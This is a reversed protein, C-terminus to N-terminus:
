RPLKLKVQRGGSDLTVSVASIEVVEAENIVDGEAVIENNIVAKPTNASYLIGSLKFSGDESEIQRTKKKPPGIRKLIGEMIPALKDATVFGPIKQIVKGNNDLFFINPYGKVNYKAVLDRRKDGDIKVCIFKVALNQINKVAYTENDLKACWGCRDTYFDVMIPKGDQKARSIASSLDHSWSLAYLLVPLILCIAQFVGIFLITKKKM